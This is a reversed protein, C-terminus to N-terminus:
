LRNLKDRGPTDEVRYYSECLGENFRISDLVSRFLGVVCRKDLVKGNEDEDRQNPEACM